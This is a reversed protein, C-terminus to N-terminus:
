RDRRGDVENLLTSSPTQEETYTGEMVNQKDDDASGCTHTFSSSFSSSRSRDNFARGQGFYLVNFRSLIFGAMLRDIGPLMILLAFVDSIFGPFIFMAGAVPLLLLRVNNQLALRGDAEQLANLLSRARLKMILVGVVIAAFMLSITALAGIRSGIEILTLLELIFFGLFFLVVRPM